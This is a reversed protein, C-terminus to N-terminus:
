LIVSALDPLANVAAFSSVPDPSLITTWAHCSLSAWFHSSISISGLCNVMHFATCNTFCQSLSAILLKLGSSKGAATLSEIAKRRIQPSGSRLRISDVWDM